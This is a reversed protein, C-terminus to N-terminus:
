MRTRVTQKLSMVKEKLLKGNQEQFINIECVNNMNRRIILRPKLLWQLQVEEKKDIINQVSQWIM